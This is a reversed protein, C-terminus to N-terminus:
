LADGSFLDIAVVLPEPPLDEGPNEDPIGCEIKDPLIKGQRHRVNEDFVRL